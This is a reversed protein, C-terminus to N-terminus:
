PRGRRRRQHAIWLWMWMWMRISYRISSVRNSSSSSSPESSTSQNIRDSSHARGAASARPVRLEHHQSHRGRARGEERASDESIEREHGMSSGDRRDYRGLDVASAVKFVHDVLALRHEVAVVKVVPGGLSELDRLLVVDSALLDAGDLVYERSHEIRHITEFDLIALPMELGIAFAENTRRDYAVM